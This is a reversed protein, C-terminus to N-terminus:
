FHTYGEERMSLIEGTESQLTLSEGETICGVVHIPAWSSQWRQNLTQLFSPAITFCLEYDDGASLAWHHAQEKTLSQLAPSLPLRDCNLTAGVESSQLIHSLDAVLGDSIDIAASAFGLLAQGEAVRPTPAHLRAIAYDRIWDAPRIEDRYAALGLGADGLTGTICILDGVQAGSRTLALAPDVEGLIQVSMCLAGRTLDGGILQVGFHAAINFFGRSFGDLWDENADPLTLCLTAWKPVAGMAAMDSLNVALAKHGVLEPDLRKPFHTGAVLTDCSVALVGKGGPRVL